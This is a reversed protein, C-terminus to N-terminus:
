LQNYWSLFLVVFIHPLKPLILLSGRSLKSLTGSTQILLLLICTGHSVALRFYSTSFIFAVYMKYFDEKWIRETESQEGASNSNSDQCDSWAELAGKVRCWCEEACGEANISITWFRYQGIVLAFSSSM